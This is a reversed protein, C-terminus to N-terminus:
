ILPKGKIIKLPVTLGTWKYRFFDKGRINLFLTSCKADWLHVQRLELLEEGQEIRETLMDEIFVTKNM